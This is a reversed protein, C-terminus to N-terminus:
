LPHAPGPLVATVLQRKEGELVVAPVAAVDETVRAGTVLQGQGGVGSWDTHAVAAVGQEKLPAGGGGAGLAPAEAPGAKWVLQWGIKMETPLRLVTGFERPRSNTQSKSPQNGLQAAPGRSRLVCSQFSCM